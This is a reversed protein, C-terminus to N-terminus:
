LPRFLSTISMAVICCLMTLGVGLDLAIPGIRLPPILRRFFKVPPDTVSYVTEIAVLAFNHPRWARNVSRVLDIVIRAWLAFFYLLLGFYIISALLSVVSM